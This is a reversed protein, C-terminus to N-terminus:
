EKKDDDEEEEDNRVHVPIGLNAKDTLTVTSSGRHQEFIVIEVEQDKFLPGPAYLTKQPGIDWYRGLNFSNVFVIGKTWGQMDIFADDTSSPTYTGKYLVPGEYNNINAINQWNVSARLKAMYDSKFELPFIQWSKIKESDLLVQGYLGKREQSIETGYNVRGQNEVLIDLINEKSTEKLNKLPIAAYQWASVVSIEVGNVFIQARDRIARTFSIQKSKGDIVTRYLIYGYGQGGNNNIPMLEMPKVNDSEIPEVFSFTDKLPMFHTMQVEVKGSIKGIIKPPGPLVDPVMGPQAHRKLIERIKFYKETLDGSESLPADYDYSTITPQYKGDYDSNAGNWFGFNTGGHFMYFNVSAGMDLIRVLVKEMEEVSLVHHDEGWHDFWGSWYEMVMLPKDDGQISQVLGFHKEPKVQFNATMLVNPIQGNTYAIHSNDSTLFLEKIGRKELAEKIYVMYNLDSGYSGYENEVQVAIIPGGESYQLPEVMPILVDFYADVAKLFRPDTTRLGIDPDNLLWSPLGGLDWESCIYPGPRFIVYLGLEQALKIYSVLDLMGEFNFEGKVEEHANWPVYTEVTNLGCAKLKLLRDKWYDQHVRFYHIAGSLIQFKKGDLTFYKHDAQLSIREAANSLSAQTKSPQRTRYAFMYWYVIACCSLLIIFVRVGHVRRFTINSMKQLPEKTCM